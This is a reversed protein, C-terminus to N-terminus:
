LNYLGTYTYGWVQVECLFLYGNGNPDGNENLNGNGDKTTRQISVYRGILDRDCYITVNSDAPVTDPYYHCVSTHDAIDSSNSVRINFRALNDDLFM